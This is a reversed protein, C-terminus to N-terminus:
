LSIYTNLVTLCNELKGISNWMSRQTEEFGQKVACKIKEEDTSYFMKQKKINNVLDRQCFKAADQGGHGDYVAFCAENKEYDVSVSSYDEMYNRGGQHKSVSASLQWHCKGSLHVTGMFPM